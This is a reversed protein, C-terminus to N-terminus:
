LRNQSVIEPDDGVHLALNGDARSTFFERVM